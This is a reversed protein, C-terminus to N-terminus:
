SLPLSKRLGYRPRITSRVRISYSSKGEFNFIATTKLQNGTITFWANDTDGVGSVLTYTFTDGSNPDTSTFTGVVTGSIQNEAVSHHDLTIDIPAAACATQLEYAGIDTADTGAANPVSPDDFMRPLERQDFIFGNNTGKDIAPSGCLLAQTFTRIPPGGNDQLPGLQPNSVGVQNHNVGDALGGSDGTGILNFSSSSDITGKIDDPIAGNFNAAVITSNLM